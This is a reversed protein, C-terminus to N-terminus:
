QASLVLRFGYHVGNKYPFGSYRYSVSCGYAYYSWSGGRTIRYSGTSAGCPDTVSGTGVSDSNWDWCWEWVNGSMDYLNLANPAKKKVEHTGYGTSGSSAASGTVGNNCVNYWYWGVRDLDSNKEDSYNTTTAGAFYNAFAETGYTKQGGRAAYEWEAETPLRYGNATMDCTIVGSISNGNHPTYNWDTVSTNGDVKYCPTLGVSESYRNCFYIADYWSVKEVPRNEQVEGSVPNSNFNSPNTGMVADYEGQTLEHDSMYFSSLTVTRGSPFAGPEYQNYDDSGVVTGGQVFVFGDSEIWKAYLTLNDTVSQGVSAKKDNSYSSDTYWGCFIWGDATLTPLTESTIATRVKTAQPTNGHTTVYNVNHIDASRVLRFGYISSHIYPDNLNRYSVSCCDADHYWCGGRLIRDSGSSAGCPDTVNGAGVSDSRWDWCWECVNGSMDYLNLANPAKKKVEHTNTNNIGANYYYWAVPNLDSNEVDSYNTTTAGAFYYAFEDTGYTIQGGRAAYEWEAETPLRYGDATMDCTIAGNISDSNHPTYNWSTVSTNGDVKYCPTLDKSESYMNCFYIADYWSVMEVPRNEKVEGSAPDSSYASPNTGMIASYEGQTLEHDSMYFSSLTVTRGAVFVGTYKQNYSSDGVVTGGEVFVFGDNPGTREIWKAYLTLGTTVSHGVRIRKDSDYSENSYWGCFSYGEVSLNPLNTTTFTLTEGEEFILDDPATGHATEFNVKPLWKAYLKLNTAINTVTSIENGATCNQDTYWGGFDYYDRTVSNGTPLTISSKRTFTEQLTVGATLSGGNLEYTITYLNDFSTIQRTASSTLGSSIQVLERYTAIEFDDVDNENSEAFFKVKARYTGVKINQAAFVVTNSSPPLQLSNFGSVVTGDMDELTALAYSVNNKNEAGDYNLTINFSGVSNEDGAGDDSISLVFSLANDGLEIQKTTTGSLTTGNVGGAKATLTFSWEGTSVACKATQLENVANWHGLTLETGGTKTGKLVLNTLADANIVPNVNRGLGAVSLTIYAADKKATESENASKKGLLNSCSLMGALIFTIFTILQITKLLKKM